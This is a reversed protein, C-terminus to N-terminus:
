LIILKAKQNDMGKMTRGVPAGIYTPDCVVYKKNQYLIYDGNVQDKFQVAAALHGPYYLLAVKAGVLDRVLRSFLIARDECDCYPYYLTELAFFVRDGGWVKDDYEYEFATQVWNLIQGVAEKESLGELKAKLQPYLTNKVSKDLPTNAYAAWCTTPDGNLYARPYDNFFNIANKNVSVTTSLGKKSNLSRKPTSEKDLKQEQAIQLSLSKENKVAAPCIHMDDAKGDIAYFKQGDCRYYTMNFIDYQSAVLLFLRSQKKSFAMRVRYGSQTLLYVQMYVATNNKGYHKETIAKVLELYGWDCLKLNKRADLMNSVTVDYKEDSLQNWADALANENLTTISFPDPEPFGISVMTGYFSVAVTKSPKQEEPVVPAIPEPTPTPIPIVTVVPQIAIVKPQFTLKPTNLSDAPQLAERKEEQPETKITDQKPQTQVEPETQPQPQPQPEPQPQPQPEEVFVQPKIKKEEIPKEAPQEEVLTWQKKMFEAYEANVQKRFADFEAQRASKFSSYEARAQKKYEEFSMNQACAGVACLLLISLLSHKM